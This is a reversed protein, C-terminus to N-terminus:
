ILGLNKKIKMELEPKLFILVNAIQTDNNFKQNQKSNIDWLSTSNQSIKFDTHSLKSKVIRVDADNILTMFKFWIDDGTPCIEKYKSDFVLSNFFHPKYLVGDKGTAFTRFSNIDQSGTSSVLGHKHWTNYPIIKKEENFQMQWARYAIVSNPWKISGNILEEIWDYPYVVDDDATIVIINKDINEKLIPLLKRYPGINETYIIKLKGKKQMNLLERPIKDPKIGQDLLYGESSIYLRIEKANLSQYLISRITKTVSHIRSDITTLSVIIDNTSSTKKSIIKKLFSTGHFKLRNLVNNIQNIEKNLLNRIKILVLQFIKVFMLLYNELVIIERPRHGFNPHTIALVYNTLKLALLNGKLITQICIKFHDNLLRFRTLKILHELNYRRAFLANHKIGVLLDDVKKATWLVERHDRQYIYSTINVAYFKVSLKMAKIFFPPDQFRTLEPFRINNKILFERSYIFRYFGYDFQYDTYNIFGESAFAFHDNPSPFKDQFSDGFNIILNGGCILAKNDQTKNYLISLTDDTPISDDPDLFYIFEGQAIDIGDNRARGVGENPKTKVVINKHLKQYKKLIEDSRDHSGDNICILEIPSLTQKLFSNLAYELYEEAQYVPMIVSVKIRM